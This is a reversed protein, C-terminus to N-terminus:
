RRLIDNAMVKTRIKRIETYLMRGEEASDSSVRISM